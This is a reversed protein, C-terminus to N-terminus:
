KKDVGKIKKIEFTYHGGREEKMWCVAWFVFNKQLAMIIEENGSWGATSLYLRRRTKKFYGVDAFEWEGKILDILPLLGQKIIDWEQIIKLVQESPYHGM